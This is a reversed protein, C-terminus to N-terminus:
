HTNNIIVKIFCHSVTHLHVVLQDSDMMTSSVGLIAPVRVQGEACAPRGRVKYLVASVVVDSPGLASVLV